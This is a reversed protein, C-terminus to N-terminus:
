KKNTDKNLSKLYNERKKENDERFCCLEYYQEMCDQKTFREDFVGPIFRFSDWHWDRFGYPNDPNYLTKFTPLTYDVEKYEGLYTLINGRQKGTKTFSPTRSILGQTEFKKLIKQITRDSVGLKEALGMVRIARGSYERIFNLIIDEREKPTPKRLEKYVDFETLGNVLKRKDVFEVYGYNAQGRKYKKPM